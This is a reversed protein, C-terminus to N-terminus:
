PERRTKELEMISYRMMIEPGCVLSVTDRPTYPARSVLLTVVGVYGRWNGIARDVTVYVDLDFRSKWTELEKRFLIDIPTRTGYLLVVKGYLERRSLVHYMAPRLPALGIGGAIFVVDRGELSDLPWSAGYPGRIGVVDGRKLERMAKTVTGVARTTHVLFEPRSPDGSISIPIEGIGYVYLMNFQGAEFGFERTGNISELYLTFTDHTENHVRKVRYQNTRLHDAGNRRVGAKITKEM